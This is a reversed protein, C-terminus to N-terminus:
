GQVTEKTQRYQLLSSEWAITWLITSLVVSVATMVPVSEIILSLGLNIAAVGLSVLLLKLYQAKLGDWFVSISEMVNGKIVVPTYLLIGIAPFLVIALIYSGYVLVWQYQRVPSTIASMVLGFLAFVALVGVVSTLAFIWVHRLAGTRARKGHLRQYHYTYLRNLLFVLGAVALAATLLRLWHPDILMYIVPIVTCVIISGCIWLGSFLIQRSHETLYSLTKQLFRYRM